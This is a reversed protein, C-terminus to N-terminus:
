FVRCTPIGIVFKAGWTRAEKLQTTLEIELNWPLIVIYDPRLALM